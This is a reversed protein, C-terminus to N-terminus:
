QLASCSQCSESCILPLRQVARFFRPRSTTTPHHLSQVADTTITAVRRQGPTIMHGLYKITDSFCFTKLELTMSAKQMPQLVSEVYQLHNKPSKSFIAVDELYVLFHQWKVPALIIIIARQFMAHANKLGFPMRTNRYLGNHTFIATKLLGAQNLETRKYSSNADLTPFAKTSVLSDICENMRLVPYCDRVTAANLRSYVVCFRLGGNKKLAFVIPSAWNTITLKTVNDKVMKNVKDWELQRQRPRTRYPLSYMLNSDKSLQIRYETVLIRGLHGDWRTAYKSLM